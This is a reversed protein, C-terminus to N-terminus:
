TQNNSTLKTTARLVLATGLTLLQELKDPYNGQGVTLILNNAETVIGSVDPELINAAKTAIDANDMRLRVESYSETVSYYIISGTVYVDAGLDTELVSDIITYPLAILKGSVQTLEIWNDM